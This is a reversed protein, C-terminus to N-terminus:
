PVTSKEYLRIWYEGSTYEKTKIKPLSDIIADYILDTDYSSHIILQILSDPEKHVNTFEESKLVYGSKHNSLHFGGLFFALIHTDKSYTNKIHVVAQKELNVVDEYGLDHDSSSRNQLHDIGFGVFIAVWICSFIPNKIKSLCYTVSIISFLVILVLVYRNIYFNLSSGIWFAILGFWLILLYPVKKKVSALLSFLLVGLVSFLLFNRGQFVFIFAGFNNSFKHWIDSINWTILNEHQEFIWWGWAMKNMLFQLPVVIAPLIIFVLGLVSARNQSTFLLAYLYHATLGGIIFLGTEKTLCLLTGFIAYVVWKKKIYSEIVLLSWLTLMMEPLVMVSQALFVPQITVVIVAGLGIWSSASIFSSLRFVTVLVLISIVLALLHFNFVSAGCLKGWLGFVFHFLLPHGRGLDKSIASPWLSPSNSMEWVAPGYVWSEDWFFPLYLREWCFLVVGILIFGLFVVPLWKNSKLSNLYGQLQSM